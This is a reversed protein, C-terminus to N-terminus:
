MGTHMEHKQIVGDEDSITIDTIICGSNKLMENNLNNKIENFYLFIDDRNKGNRMVNKRVYIADGTSKIEGSAIPPNPLDGPINLMSSITSNDLNYSKVRFDVSICDPPALRDVIKKQCCVYIVSTIIILILLLIKSLISKIKHKIIILVM